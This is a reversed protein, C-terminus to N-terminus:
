FIFNRDNIAYTKKIYLISTIFYKLSLEKLNVSNLLKSCYIFLFFFCIEKIMIRLLSCILIVFNKLTIEETLKQNPDSLIKINDIKEFGIIKIKDLFRDLIYDLGM